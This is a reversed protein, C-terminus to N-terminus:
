GRGIRCGCSCESSGPRRRAKWRAGGERGLSLRVDGLRSDSYRRPPNEPSTGAVNARAASFAFDIPILNERRCGRCRFTESLDPRQMAFSRRTRPTRRTPFRKSPRLSREISVSRKTREASEFRSEDHSARHPALGLGSEDMQKPAPSSRHKCPCSRVRLVSVIPSTCDLGSPYSCILFSRFPRSSSAEVNSPRSCIISGSKGERRRDRRGSRHSGHVTCRRTEDRNAEDTNSDDTDVRGKRRGIRRGRVVFSSEFRMRAVVPSSGRRCVEVEVKTVFNRFEKRGLGRIRDCGDVAPCWVTSGM